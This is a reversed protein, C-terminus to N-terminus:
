IKLLDSRIEALTVEARERGVEVMARKELYEGVQTSLTMCSEAMNLIRNCVEIKRELQRAAVREIIRSREVIELKYVRQECLHAMRHLADIIFYTREAVLSSLRDAKRGLSKHHAIKGKIDLNDVDHITLEDRDFRKGEPSRGSKFVIPLFSVEYAEGLTSRLDDKIESIQNELSEVEEGRKMVSKAKNKFRWRSLSVEDLAKRSLAYPNYWGFIGTMKEVDEHASRTERLLTRQERLLIELDQLAKKTKSMKEEVPSAKANLGDLRDEVKEIREELPILDDKAKEIAIGRVGKVRLRLKTRFDNAEEEPLDVASPKIRGDIIGLLHESKSQLDKLESEVAKRREDLRRLARKSESQIRGESETAWKLDREIRDEEEAYDLQM